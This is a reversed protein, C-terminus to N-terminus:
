GLDNLVSIEGHMDELMKIKMTEYTTGQGLLWSFKAVMAEMSMDYAPIALDHEGLYQGSENVQFNSNGNAAQTTVVVPIQQDRLFEFEDHLSTCPDGAGFARMIIGKVGCQEVLVRLINKPMSPFESIVAMNTDFNSEKKLQSARIAFSSKKTLYSNHKALQDEDFIIVRGIVGMGNSQFSHFADYDFETSKKVRTGTIIRSGFVAVVGKVQLYPYVSIRIANELNNLADAGPMGFPVQSGTLVVPKNLNELAFSLAASTYGLTNTGHTVLFADFQDYNEHITNSINTWDESNIDSSDKDVLDISSVDIDIQWKDKIEVITSKLLKNFDSSSKTQKERYSDNAVNGAITGGTTILCINKMAM